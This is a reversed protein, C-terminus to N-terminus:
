IKSSERHAEETIKTGIDGHLTMQPFPIEWNNETCAEVSWKQIARRLRNYLDGLEGKFDAIIVIDLSSNNAQAFEVRLNLLKNAYESDEIKNQIFQFLIQPITHTSESQLSYSIGLTEKIRFNTALNRPANALFDSTQYTLKAGGREVLEILELSIGTVKGRTGDSLIVWDDKRCPFWPESRDFPRSTKDVLESIPIRLSMEATPNILKSFFNIHQVKWPLGDIVIRESERVSGINLFLYIQKWYHPLAQKLTWSLGLLILIGLSFLVWDEVVYFVVMPGIIVFIITFIRHLLEVLRTRFSRHGARFGPIVRHMAKYSLQSMILIIFVVLIAEGLYLGRKQFFSKLYSQSSEVVSTESAILKDLHLKAAHLESLMFSKRQEWTVIVTDFMKRYSKNKNYKQLLKINSLAEELVPLREEYFSIKDKLESKQRVHSTMEKMEDFAPKLLASLEEQFDFKPEEKDQLISIDVGAAVYRFNKKTTQLESQLESLQQTLVEKEIETQEGKLQKQIKNISSELKKRLALFTDLTELTKNIKKEQVPIEEPSDSQAFVSLSM